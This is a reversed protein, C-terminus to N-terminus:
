YTGRTNVIRNSMVFKTFSQKRRGYDRVSSCPQFIFCIGVVYKIYSNVSGSLHRYRNQNTRHANTGVRFDNFQKAFLRLNQCCQFLVNCFGIFFTQNLNIFLQTGALGRCYFAGSRQQIAHEKIGLSIVQRLNTTIFEVFLQRQSVTNTICNQCFVHNVGHCALNDCLLACNQCQLQAVPNLVATCAIQIDHRFFLLYFDQAVLGNLNVAIQLLEPQHCLFEADLFSNVIGHQRLQQLYVCGCLFHLRCDLFRDSGIM